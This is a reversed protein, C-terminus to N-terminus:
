ENDSDSYVPKLRKWTQKTASDVSLTPSQNLTNINICFNGGQIVAASFLDMGQKQASLSTSCAAARTSSSSSNGAVLGSLLKSMHM